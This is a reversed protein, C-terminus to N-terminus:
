WYKVVGEKEAEVDSFFLMMMIVANPPEDGAGNQRKCTVSDSAAAQALM